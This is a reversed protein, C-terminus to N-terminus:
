SNIKKSYHERSFAYIDNVKKKSDNISNLITTLSFPPIPKGDKLTSIYANWNALDILYEKSIYPYFRKELIEADDLGVRFSVVTGVNGFIAKQIHEPIQSIFQNALILSIRFKRGESLLTIFNDTTISQFEDIYVFFDKRLKKEIKIRELAASQLKALIVLGLFRSNIQSLEGKALNVLLIKGSDMIDKFDITSNSQSFINRLKPDFLFQEFKSSIYAGTSLGESGQRLYDTNPLVSSVWNELHADSTKLPLWKKWYNEIQFINYFDFLTSKIDPDSMTLLLNMKVHQFFIPGAFTSLSPAGYEDILLKSLIYVVEQAIFYRETKDRYELLNIGVPYDIDTPDILVIDKIREQPITVLLEKFLDGHPDIVCLGNGNKIDSIIMNKLLTTKGTGTQGVIYQHRRRDDDAIKISKVNNGYYNNGLEVGETPFHEFTPIQPSRKVDIGDLNEQLLVPPSFIAAAEEISINHELLFKINSQYDDKDFFLNLKGFINKTGNKNQLSIKRIELNINESSYKNTIFNPEVNLETLYSIFLNVLIESLPNNSGVIIQLLLPNGKVSKLINNQFMQYYRAKERLAPFLENVDSSNSLNLQAFKECIIIQKNILNILEKNQDIPKLTISFIYKSNLTSLQKFFTNAFNKGIPFPAVHYIQSQFNNAGGEKNNSVLGFKKVPKEEITDLKIVESQRKIESVFNIDSSNFVLDSNKGDIIEFDYNSYNNVSLDYFNKCYNKFQKKGIKDSRIIIYFNIEDKIQSDFDPNYIIRIEYSIRKDKKIILSKIWSLQRYYIEKLDNKQFENKTLYYSSIKIIFIQEELLKNKM